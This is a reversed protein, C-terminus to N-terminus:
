GYLNGHSTDCFDTGMAQDTVSGLTLSNITIITTVDGVTGTGDPDYRIATTWDNFQGELTSGLQM